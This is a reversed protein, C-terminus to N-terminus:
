ASMPAVVAQRRLRHLQDLPTRNEALHAPSHADNSTVAVLGLREALAAWAREEPPRHRRTTVEVGAFPFRRLLREALVLDAPLSLQKGPHALIAIGRVEALVEDIPLGEIRVVSQVEPPHFFHRGFAKVDALELERLRARNKPQAFAADSIDRKTPLGHRCHDLRSLDIGARSVLQKLRELRRRRQEQLRQLIAAFGRRPRPELLLVHLRRGCFRVSLEVGAIVEIGAATLTELKQYGDLTDHDTAAVFSLGAQRIMAATIDGDSASTHLHLQGYTM